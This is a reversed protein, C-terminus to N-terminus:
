HVGDHTAGAAACGQVHLVAALSRVVASAWATREHLRSQMASFQIIGRGGGRRVRPYLRCADPTTASRQACCKTEPHRPHIKCIKRGNERRIDLVRHRKTKSAVVTLRYRALHQVNGSNESSM